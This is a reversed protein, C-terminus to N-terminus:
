IFNVEVLRTSYQVASGALRSTQVCNENRAENILKWVNSVVALLLSSETRGVAM